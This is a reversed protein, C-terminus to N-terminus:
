AVNRLWELFREGDVFKEVTAYTRNDCVYFEGNIYRLIYPLSLEDRISRARSLIPYPQQARIRPADSLSIQEIM